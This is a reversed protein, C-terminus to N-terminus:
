RRHLHAIWLVHRRSSGDGAIVRKVAVDFGVARLRGTFGADEFGSWLALTGGPRLARAAAALGEASYLRKNTFHTLAVPGNDVDLLIADYAGQARAIVDAVDGEIVAVRADRLPEGALHGLLGTDRNWRVVAAVLEVVEVTADAALADLAARVTFGMGMGGILVRVGPKASLGACGYSALKEESAHSHSNMLDQGDVRIVYRDDRSALTMEGGDGTQTRDHTVWIAM